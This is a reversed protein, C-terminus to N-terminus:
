EWTSSHRRSVKILRKSGDSSTRKSDKRSSTWCKKRQIRAGRIKMRKSDRKAEEEQIGPLTATKKKEGNRTIGEQVANESYERRKRPGGECRRSGYRGGHRATDTSIAAKKSRRGTENVSRKRERKPWRHHHAKRREDKLGIKRSADLKKEKEDSREQKPVEPGSWEGRARAQPEQCGKSHRIEGSSNRVYTFRDYNAMGRLSICYSANVARPLSGSLKSRQSIKYFKFKRLCLGIEIYVSRNLLPHPFMISAGNRRELLDSTITQAAFYRARAHAAVSPIAHLALSPTLILMLLGWFVLSPLQLQIQHQAFTNGALIATIFILATPLRIFM